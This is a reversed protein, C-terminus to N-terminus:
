TSQAYVRDCLNRLTRPHIGLSSYGDVSGATYIVILVILVSANLVKNRKGSGVGIVNFRM